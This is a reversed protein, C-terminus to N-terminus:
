GGILGLLVPKAVEVCVEGAPIRMQALVVPEVILRGRVIFDGVATTHVIPATVTTVTGAVGDNRLFDFLSAPVRVVADGDDIDIRGLVDSDNVEYGQVVYSDHDTAYLTPSDDPNSTKGLFRLRM